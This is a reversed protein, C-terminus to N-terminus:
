ATIRPQGKNILKPEYDLHEILDAGLMLEMLRVKLKKILGKNGLFDEPREAGSLVEDQLGKPISM